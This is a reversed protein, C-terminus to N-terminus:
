RKLLTIVKDIISVFGIITFAILLIYLNNSLFNLMSLTFLVMMISVFMTFINDAKHKARMDVYFLIVTIMFVLSMVMEMREM